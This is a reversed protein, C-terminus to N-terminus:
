GSSNVTTRFTARRVLEVDVTPVFRDSSRCAWCQSSEPPRRGADIQDIDFAADEAVAVLRRMVAVLHATDLGECPVDAMVQLEPGVRPFKAGLYRNGESLFEDVRAATEPDSPLDVLLIMFAHIWEEGGVLRSRLAVDTSGDRVPVVVWGSTTLTHTLKVAGVLRMMNNIAAQEAGPLGAAVSSPPDAGVKTAIGAFLDNLRQLSEADSRPEGTM